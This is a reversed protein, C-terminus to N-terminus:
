WKMISKAKKSYECSYSVQVQEQNCLTTMVLFGFDLHFTKHNVSFFLFNCKVVREIQMYKLM